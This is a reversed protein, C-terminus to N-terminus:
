CQNLAPFYHEGCLGHSDQPNFRRAILRRRRYDRVPPLNQRTDDSRLDLNVALIAPHHRLQRRPFVQPLDHRHHTLRNRLRPHLKRIHVRNTHRLPRPQHPCQQDSNRVSFRHRLRQPPREYRHIMKLPVHMCNKQFRVFRPPRRPQRRHAQDNRPPVRYKIFHLRFIRVHLIRTREQTIALDPLRPVIGGPFRVVFDRLQKPQAIGSSRNQIPQGRSRITRSSRHFETRRFHFSIRQVEAKASQLSRHEVVHPLM